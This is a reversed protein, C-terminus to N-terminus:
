PFGSLARKARNAPDAMAIARLVRAHRATFQRRHQFADSFNASLVRQVDIIDEVGAVAVDVGNEEIVLPVFGLHLVRQCGGLFYESKADIEAAGYGPLM